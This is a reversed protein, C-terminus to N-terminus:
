GPMPQAFPRTAFHFLVTSKFVYDLYWVVYLAFVDFICPSNTLIGTGTPLKLIERESDSWDLLFHIFLCEPNLYSNLTHMRTHM